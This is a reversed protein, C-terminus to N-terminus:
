TSRSLKISIISLNLFLGSFDDVVLTPSGLRDTKEIDAIYDNLLM